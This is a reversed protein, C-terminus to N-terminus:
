KIGFSILNLSRKNCEHDLEILKNMEEKIPKIDLKHELSNLALNNIIEDELEKIKDRLNNNEDVEEEKISKKQEQNKKRNKTIYNLSIFEYSIQTNV